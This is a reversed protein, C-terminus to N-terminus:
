EPQEGCGAFIFLFFFESILLRHGLVVLGLQLTEPCDQLEEPPTGLSTVVAKIIEPEVLTSLGKDSGSSQARLLMESPVPSTRQFEMRIQELVYYMLKNNHENKMRM